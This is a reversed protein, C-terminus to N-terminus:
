LTDSLIGLMTLFAPDSFHPSGMGEVQSQRLFSLMMEDILSWTDAGVWTQGLRGWSPSHPRPRSAKGTWGRGSLFVALAAPGYCCRIVDLGQPADSVVLRHFDRHLTHRPSSTHCPFISPRPALEGKNDWEAGSSSSQSRQPFPQWPPKTHSAYTVTRLLLQTAPRTPPCRPPLANLRWAEKRTKSTKLHGPWRFPNGM